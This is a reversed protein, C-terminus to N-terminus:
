VGLLFAPNEGAMRRVETWTFGLALLAALYRRLGHAPAPNVAQGLDTSLVTSAVGVRRIQQAIPEFGSGHLGFLGCREFFVPPGRLEEQVATSMGIFPADPHTVLLRDLNRQRAARVVAVIEEVSLHGTGLIAEHRAVLDIIEWVATHLRGDEDLVTLGGAQGAFRRANAADHTPLWVQRAGLTLATEVACPNLGGVAENLALGGFVRMGDVTKEALQARDATLTVHSKILIARLGAAAAARTAECDDFLRPVVDPATHIHMDILGTLSVEGEVSREHEAVPQTV